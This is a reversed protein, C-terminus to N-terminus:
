MKIIMLNDWGSALVILYLAIDGLWFVTVAIYEPYRDKKKVFCFGASILSRKQIEDVQRYFCVAIRITLTAAFPNIILYVLYLGEFIFVNFIM